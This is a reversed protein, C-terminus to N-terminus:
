AFRFFIISGVLFPAFPVRAGIERRFLLVLLGAVVWALLHAQLPNTEPYLYAAVPALRVDGYGISARSLRFIQSYIFFLGLM